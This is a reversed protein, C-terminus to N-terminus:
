FADIIYAVCFYMSRESIVGV